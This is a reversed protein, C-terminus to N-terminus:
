AHEERMQKIFGVKIGNIHLFRNSYAFFLSTTVSAKAM